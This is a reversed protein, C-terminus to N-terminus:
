TCGAIVRIEAVRNWEAQTKGDHALDCAEALLARFTVVLDTVDNIIRTTTGTPYRGHEDLYRQAEDVLIILNAIRTADMSRTSSALVGSGCHMCPIGAADDSRQVSCGACFM